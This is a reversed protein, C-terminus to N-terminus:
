STARSYDASIIVIGITFTTITTGILAQVDFYYRGIPLQASAIEDLTVTIDGTAADDVTISGQSATASEGNLYILGPTAFGSGVGIQIISDDDPQAEYEKLTFWLKTYGTLAGLDTLAKSISDGRTFRLLDSTDAADQTRLGSAVANILAVITTQASTIAALITTQASTIATTITSQMASLTTDIRALVATTLETRPDYGTLQVKAGIAIMGTASGGMLVADVGSAFAADPIDVRYYGDSIHLIGGDTHADTLVSLAAPTIAVKLGSDRRYWLALGATLSTVGTEPSGDSSDVIRFDVSRDTSGTKILLEM